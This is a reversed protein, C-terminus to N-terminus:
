VIQLCFLSNIGDVGCLGFFSGGVLGVMYKEDFDATDERRNKKRYLLTPRFM